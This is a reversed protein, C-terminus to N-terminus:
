RGIWWRHSGPLCTSAVPVTCEGLPSLLGTVTHHTKGEVLPGLHTLLVLLLYEGIGGASVSVLGTHSYILVEEMCLVCLPNLVVSLLGEGLQLFNFSSLLGGTIHYPGLHSAWYLWTFSGTQFLRYVFYCYSSLTWKCWYVSTLWSLSFILCM